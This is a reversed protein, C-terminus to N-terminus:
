PQAYIYMANAVCTRVVHVRSYSDGLDAQSKLITSQTYFSIFADGALKLDKKKKLETWRDYLLKRWFAYATMEDSIWERFKSEDSKLGIM